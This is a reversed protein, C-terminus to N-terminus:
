AHGDPPDPPPPPDEEAQLERDVAREDDRAADRLPYALNLLRRDRVCRDDSVKVLYDATTSLVRDHLDRSAGEPCVGLLLSWLEDRDVDRGLQTRLTALVRNAEGDVAPCDVTAHRGSERTEAARCATVLCLADAAYRYDDPDHNFCMHRYAQTLVRDHRLRARIRRAPPADRELYRPIQPVLICRSLAADTRVSQRWRDVAVISIARNARRPDDLPPAPRGAPRPPLAAPLIDDFCYRSPVRPLLARPYVKDYATRLDPFFVTNQGFAITEEATLADALLPRAFARVRPDRAPGRQDCLLARTPHENPLGRARRMFRFQMKQQYLELPPINFEAHLNAHSCRYPLALSKALPRATAARLKHFVDRTPRWHELGYVIQPQMLGLVLRRVVLPGPPAAPRVVSAIRAATQNATTIVCEAQKRWLMKQDFHVGLYRATSDSPIPRLPANARAPLSLDALIRADRSKEANTSLHRSFVITVCKGHNLEMRNHHAWEDVRALACQMASRVSAAPPLKSSRSEAFLRATDLFLAVDDAYLLPRLPPLGAVRETILKVVPNIFVLFLTPSLVCGQPVGFPAHFSKSTVSRDVVRFTRERLFADIWRLARGNIGAQSLLVILRDPWVRDFAKRLDLLTVPIQGGLQLVTNVGHTLQALADGTSRQSRFGFQCNAFAQAQELEATLKARVLHEFSRIVASTMSIPRYSSATSKDGSGKYLAIV